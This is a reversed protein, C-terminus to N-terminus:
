EMAIDYKDDKGIGEEGALDAQKAANLFLRQRNVLVKLEEGARVVEEAVTLVHLKTRVSSSYSMQGRSSSNEALASNIGLETIEKARNIIGQIREMFSNFAEATRGIEDKSESNIHTTLDGDDKAMKDLSERLHEIRSVKNYVLLLLVLAFLLFFCAQIIALVMKYFSEETVMGGMESSVETVVGSVTLVKEIAETSREMWTASNLPYNGNGAAAYVENRISDFSDVGKEMDGIAVAIRSDTGRVGKQALINSMNQMVVTHLANLNELVAKTVPKRAAIIPGLTGRERGMYESILWITQKLILNDQTIQHMHDSSAFATQRLIAAHDILDTIATFWNIILQIDTQGEKLSTDVRERVDALSKYARTTQELAMAFQSGPENDAINKAESLAANLAIDGKERLKFIKKIVDSDASGIGGLATAATGRELAQQASAIIIKDAIDNMVTLRTAIKHRQWANWGALGALSIGLISVLVVLGNLMLRISLNKFAMKIM